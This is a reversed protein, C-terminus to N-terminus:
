KPLVEGRKSWPVTKSKLQKSLATLIKRIQGLFFANRGALRASYRKVYAHMQSSAGEIIPLTLQCSSLGRLAEPINHAEDIIVLSSQLSLGVAQRAQKSLLTNYPVVM